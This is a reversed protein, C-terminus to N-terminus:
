VGVGRPGKAKVPLGKGKSARNYKILCTRLDVM